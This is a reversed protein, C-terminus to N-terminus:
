PAAVLAPMSFLLVPENIGLQQSSNDGWCYAAKRATLGCTHAYGASLVTFALGGTVAVPVTSCYDFPTRVFCVEPGVNTGIGLEGYLNYGWCYAARGVLGCTHDGGVAVGAFALGGVVAVPVTSCSEFTRCSEPGYSTGIGLQGYRNDGWCHTAGATTLGCSQFDGAGISVFTLGGAVAVPVSSDATTGDGLEGFTNDGWCHAAGSTTLGCTFAFGAGHALFTLGGAVAVPKTSCPNYNCIEPGTNTGIGLQGVDNAGWCYLAGARTRGCTHLGGASLSAFSLGGEVAIPVASGATTGNGLQGWSNDGWCYAAGSAILGCDHNGGATLAGFTFGGPVATPKAGWCYVAGGTTLGCTHYDGASVAALSLRPATVVARADWRERVTPSVPSPENRCAFLFLWPLPRFAGRRVTLSM